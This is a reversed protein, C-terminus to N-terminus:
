AADGYIDRHAVIRPKNGRASFSAVFVVRTGEVVVCGAHTVCGGFLMATGARPKLVISPDEVRHGRADQSWFATGGGRFDKGPCSLPLLVTLAHADKHALFEGGTTYVNIAPERSSFHLDSSQFLATLSCEGTNSGFLTQSVCPLYQDIHRCIRDLIDLLREDLDKPVPEACPTRTEQARRYAAITPIRLLGPKELETNSLQKTSLIAKCASVIYKCENVDVIDPLLIVSEGHKIREGASSSDTMMATTHPDIPVENWLAGGDRCTELLSSPNSAQLSSTTQFPSRTTIGLPVSFGQVLRISQHVHLVLVLLLRQQIRSLLLALSFTNM